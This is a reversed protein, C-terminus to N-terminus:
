PTRPLARMSVYPLERQIVGRVTADYEWEGRYFDLKNESVFVHGYYADNNQYGSLQFSGGEWHYAVSQIVRIFDDGSGEHLIVGFGSEDGYEVIRQGALNKVGHASQRFLCFVHGDYQQGRSKWEEESIGEGQPIASATKLWYVMRGSEERYCALLKEEGKSLLTVGYCGKPTDRIELYDFIEYGSFHQAVHATVESPMADQAALAAASLVLLAALLLSFFIRKM